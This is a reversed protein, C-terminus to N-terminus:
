FAGIVDASRCGAAIIQGKQELAYGEVLADTVEAERASPGSTELDILRGGVKARWFVRRNDSIRFAVARGEVRGEFLKQERVHKVTRRASVAADACVDDVPLRLGTAAQKRDPRDGEAAAEGVVVILVIDRAKYLVAQLPEQGIRSSPAAFAVMM